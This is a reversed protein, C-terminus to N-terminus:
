HIYILSTILLLSIFPGRLSATFVFFFIANQLREKFYTIEYSSFTDEFINQFVNKILGSIDIYDTERGRARENLKQTINSPKM